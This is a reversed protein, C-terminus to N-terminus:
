GLKVPKVSNIKKNAEKEFAGRNKKEYAKKDKEIQKAANKSYNEANKRNSIQGSSESRLKNQYWLYMADYDYDSSKAKERMANYKIESIENQMNSLIDYIKKKDCTPRYENSPQKCKSNVISEFGEINKKEVIDIFKLLIILIIFIIIFTVIM